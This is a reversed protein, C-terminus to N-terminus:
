IFIHYIGPLTDELMREYDESSLIPLIQPVPTPPCDLAPITPDVSAETDEFGEDEEEKDHTDEESMTLVAEAYDAM